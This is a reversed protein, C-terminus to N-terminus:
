ADEEIDEFIKIYDLEKITKIRSSISLLSLDVIKLEMERNCKISRIANELNSIIEVIKEDDDSTFIDTVHQYILRLDEGTANTERSILVSLDFFEKKVKEYSESFISLKSNPSFGGGIGVNGSSTITFVPIANGTYGQVSGLQPNLIQYGQMKRDIPYKQSHIWTRVLPM